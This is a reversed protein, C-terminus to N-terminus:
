TEENSEDEKFIEAAKKDELEVSAKCIHQICTIYKNGNFKDFNFGGEAATRLALKQDNPDVTQPCVGLRFIERCLGAPDISDRMWGGWESTVTEESVHPFEAYYKEIFESYGNKLVETCLQYVYCVAFLKPWMGPKNCYGNLAKKYAKKKTSKWGAEPYYNLGYIYNIAEITSLEFEKNM